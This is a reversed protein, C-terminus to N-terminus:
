VKFLQSIFFDFVLLWSSLSTFFIYVCLFILSIFYKVPFISFQSQFTIITQLGILVGHKPALNLLEPSTKEQKERGHESKQVPGLWAKWKKM